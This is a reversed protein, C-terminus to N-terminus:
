ADHLSDKRDKSFRPLFEQHYLIFSVGMQSTILRLLINEEESCTADPLICVTVLDVNKQHTMIKTLGDVHRGELIERNGITSSPLVQGPRVVAYEKVTRGSRRDIMRAVAWPTRAITMAKTTLYDERQRLEKRTGPYNELGCLIAHIEQLEVNVTGIYRFAHTLRSVLWSKEVGARGFEHEYANLARKFRRLVFLSIVFLIVILATEFIEEEIIIKETIAWGWQISLPVAVVCLLLFALVAVYLAILINYKQIPKM